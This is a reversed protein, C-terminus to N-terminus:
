GEPTAVVWKGRGEARAAELAEDAQRRLDTVPTGAPFGLAIGISVGVDATVDNGISLPRSLQGVLREAIMVMQDRSPSGNCVVAFEAGALHVLEDTPRMVAALRRATVRLVADGALRGLDDNVEQFGDLDFLLMAPQEGDRVHAELSESLSEDNGLGTLPDLMDPNHRGAQGSAHAQAVTALGVAREVALRAPGSLKAGSQRWVVLCGPPLGEATPPVTFCSVSAFGAARAAHALAEPLAGADHIENTAAGTLVDDWPGELPPGPVEALEPCRATGRDDDRPVLFYAEAEVPPCRLALALAAYTQVVPVDRTFISTLARDFRSYASEPLLLLVVGSVGGGDGPRNVAWVETAIGGGDTGTYALRLPGAMEGDGGGAAARILEELLGREAEAVNEALRTGLLDAYSSGGLRGLQGAAYRVLGEGDTVVVAGPISDLLGELYSSPPPPAPEAPQEGTAASARPPSTM